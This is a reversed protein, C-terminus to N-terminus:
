PSLASILILGLGAVCAAAGLGFALGAGASCPAAALTSVLMLRRVESNRLLRLM